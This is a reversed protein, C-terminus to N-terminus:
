VYRPSEGDLSYVRICFSLHYSVLSYSGCSVLLGSTVASAVFRFLPYQLLSHEDGKVFEFMHMHGHSVVDHQHALYKYVRFGLLHALPVLLGAPWRMHSSATGAVLTNPLAEFITPWQESPMALWVFM